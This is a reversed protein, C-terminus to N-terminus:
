YQLYEMCGTIIDHVSGHLLFNRRDKRILAYKGMMFVVVNYVVLLRVDSVLETALVNMPMVVNKAGLSPVAIVV